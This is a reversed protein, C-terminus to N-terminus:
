SFKYKKNISNHFALDSISRKIGQLGETESLGVPILGIVSLDESLELLESVSDDYEVILGSQLGIATSGLILQNSAVIADIINKDDEENNVVIICFIVAANKINVKSDHIKEAIQNKLASDTIIVFAFNQVKSLSPALQACALLQKIQSETLTGGSFEIFRKNQIITEFFDM